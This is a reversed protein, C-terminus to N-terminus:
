VAPSPLGKLSVKFWHWVLGLTSSVTGIATDVAWAMSEEHLLTPAMGRSSLNEVLYPPSLDNRDEEAVYSEIILSKNSGPDKKCVLCPIDETYKRGLSISWIKLLEWKKKVRFSRQNTQMSKAIQVKFLFVSLMGVLNSSPLPWDLAVFANRKASSCTIWVGLGVHRAHETTATSGETSKWIMVSEASLWGALGWTEAQDMHFGNAKGWSFRIKNIPAWGRIRVICM